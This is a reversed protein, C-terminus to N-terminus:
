ENKFLLSADAVDQVQLLNKEAQDSIMVEIGEQIVDIIEELIMEQADLVVEKVVRITEETVQIM